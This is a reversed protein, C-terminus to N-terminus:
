NRYRENLVGIFQTYKKNKSIIASFREGVLGSGMFVALLLEYEYKSLLRVVKLLRKYSTCM